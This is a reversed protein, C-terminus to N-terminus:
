AIKRGAKSGCTISDLRWCVTGRADGTSGRRGVLRELREVLRKLTWLEGVERLFLLFGSKKLRRVAGMRVENEVLQQPEVQSGITM